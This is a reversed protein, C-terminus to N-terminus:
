YFSVDDIGLDVAAPTIMNTSETDPDWEGAVQFQIQLVNTKDLAAITGYDQTLMSFPVQLTTWAAAAPVLYAHHNNCVSEGGACAGGNAPLTTAMSAVMVKFDHSSKYAFSIGTYASVNYPNPKSGCNNMDFGMGVYTGGSCTFHAYFASGGNGSATPAFPNAGTPDPPPMTGTGDGFSFWYGTRPANVANTGAELDTILLDTASGTVPGCTGTGGTGGTAGGAGTTGATGGTAPTGGTGPTGGTASTGATAGSGVTGATAGTGFTGATAGAGTGGTTGGSAGSGSNNRAGSGGPYPDSSEASCALQATAAVLGSAFLAKLLFEYKM